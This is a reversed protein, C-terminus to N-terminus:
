YIWGSKSYIKRDGVCYRFNTFKRFTSYEWFAITLVKAAQIIYFQTVINLKQSSACFENQMAFYNMYEAFFVTIQAAMLKILVGIRLNSAESNFKANDFKSTITDAIYQSLIHLYTWDGSWLMVWCKRMCMEFVHYLLIGLCVHIKRLSSINECSFIFKWIYNLIWKLFNHYFIEM